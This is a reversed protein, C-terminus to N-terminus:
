NPSFTRNMIRLDGYWEGEEKEENRKKRKTRKERITSTESTLGLVGETRYDEKLTM